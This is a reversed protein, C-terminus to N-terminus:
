MPQSANTVTIVDRLSPIHGHVFVDVAPDDHGRM